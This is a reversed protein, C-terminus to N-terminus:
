SGASKKHRKWFSEAKALLQHYLLGLILVLVVLGWWAIESRLGAQRFHEFIKMHVLYIEFSAAGLLELVFLSVHIKSLGQCIAALIMVFGPTIFAFPWWWLGWYSFADYYRQAFILVLSMVVVALGIWFGTQAKTLEKKQLHLQGFRFGLIYIPFRSFTRILLYKGFFPIMLAFAGMMLVVTGRGEYDRIIRAIPPALLYYLPLALIYWNYWLYEPAGTYHYIGLLNGFFVSFGQWAGSITGAQYLDFIWFLLAPIFAPYIRLMRRTFFTSLKPKKHLAHYLGFGSLFLFIDVGTYGYYRIQEFVWVQLTMSTHVLVVLIAAIGMIPTRYKSIWSLM